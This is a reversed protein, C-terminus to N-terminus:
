GEKEAFYAEARRSMQQAKFRAQLEDGDLDSLPFFEPYERWGKVVMVKVWVCTFDAELDLNVRYDKGLMSEAGKQYCDLMAQVKVSMKVSEYM